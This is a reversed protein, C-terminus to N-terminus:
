IMTIQRLFHYLGMTSTIKLLWYIYYEDSCKIYSVDSSFKESPKDSKFNCEILCQVRNTLNKEKAGSVSLGKKTRKITELKLIKKYRRILKHNLILKLKNEIHKKLRIKKYIEKIHKHEEM